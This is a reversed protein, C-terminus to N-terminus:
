DWFAGCNFARQAAREADARTEFEDLATVENAAVDFVAAYHVGAYTAAVSDFGSGGDHGNILCNSNKLNELMRMSPVRKSM